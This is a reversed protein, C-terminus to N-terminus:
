SSQQNFLKTLVVMILHLVLSLSLGLCLFFFSGQVDDLVLPGVKAAAKLERQVPRAEMGHEARMGAWTRRKWAQLSLM